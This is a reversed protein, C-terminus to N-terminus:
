LVCANVDLLLRQSAASTPLSPLPLFLPPSCHLATRDHEGSYKERCRRSPGSLECEVESSVGFGARNTLAVSPLTLGIADDDVALLMDPQGHRYARIYMYMHIYNVHLPSSIPCPPPTMAHTGSGEGVIEDAM